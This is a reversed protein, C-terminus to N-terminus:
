GGKEYIQRLLYEQDLEGHILHCILTDLACDITDVEEQSLTGVRERIKQHVGIFREIHRQAESMLENDAEVEQCRERDDSYGNNYM